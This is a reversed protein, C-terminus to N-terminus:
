ACKALVSSSGGVRCHRRVLVTILDVELQNGYCTRYICHLCVEGMILIYCLKFIVNEAKQRCDRILIDEATFQLQEVKVRLLGQWICKASHEQLSRLELNDNTGTHYIPMGDPLELVVALLAVGFSNTDRGVRPLCNGVSCKISCRREPVYFHCSANLM